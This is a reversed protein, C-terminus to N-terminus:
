RLLAVLAATEGPAARLEMGSWALTAAADYSNAGLSASIEAYRELLAGPPAQQRDRHGPAPEPREVWLAEGPAVLVDIWWVTKDDDRGRYFARNGPRFLFTMPNREPDGLADPATSAVQDGSSPRDTRQQQRDQESVPNDERADPRARHEDATTNGDRM